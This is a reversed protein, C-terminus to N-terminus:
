GDEIIEGNYTSNVLTGDVESVSIEPPLNVPKNWDCGSASLLTGGVISALGNLLNNKRM